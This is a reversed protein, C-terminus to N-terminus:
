QSRMCKTNAPPQRATSQACVCHRCCPTFLLANVRRHFKIQQQAASCKAVFFAFVPLPCELNRSTSIRISDLRLVLNACAFAFRISYFESHSHTDNSTANDDQTHTHTHKSSKEHMTNLWKRWVHANPRTRKQAFNM